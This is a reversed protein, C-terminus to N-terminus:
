PQVITHLGPQLSMKLALPLLLARVCRDRPDEQLDERCHHEGVHGLSLKDYLVVPFPMNSQVAGLPPIHESNALGPDWELTCTEPCELLGRLSCMPLRPLPAPSVCPGPHVYGHCAWDTDSAQPHPVISWPAPSQLLQHEAM